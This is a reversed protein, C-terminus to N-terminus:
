NKSNENEDKNIWIVKLYDNEFDWNSSLDIPCIDFSKSVICEKRKLGKSCFFLHKNKELGTEDYDKTIYKTIYKACAINNKIPSVSFFGFRDRYAKWDLYGYENLALEKETLGHLLGHLHWAGDGHQEPILLYKIKESELRKKNLDRIFQTFDKRFLRLDFRDRKEKDLTFTCFHEFDNCMAIEFITSRARSVSSAFREKDDVTIEVNSKKEKSAIRGRKIYVIKYQGHGYDYLSWYDCKIKSECKGSTVSVGKLSIWQEAWYITGIKEDLLQASTPEKKFHSIGM